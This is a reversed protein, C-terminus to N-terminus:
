KNWDSSSYYRRNQWFPGIALPDGPNTETFCHAPQIGDGCWGPGPGEVSAPCCDPDLQYDTKINGDDGGYKDKTSNYTSPCCSAGTTGTTAVTGCNAKLAEYQSVTLANIQDITLNMLFPPMPARWKGKSPGPQSETGTADYYVLEPNILLVSEVNGIGGAFEGFFDCAADICDDIQTTDIMPDMFPAGLRRRIWDSLERKKKYPRM